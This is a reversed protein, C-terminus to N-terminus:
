VNIVQRVGNVVSTSNLEHKITEFNKRAHKPQKAQEQRFAEKEKMEAPSPKIVEKNSPRPPIYYGLLAEPSVVIM